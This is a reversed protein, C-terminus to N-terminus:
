AATTRICVSNFLMASLMIILPMKKGKTRIMLPYVFARHLYHVMFLGIMVGSPTRWDFRSLPICSLFAVMLSTGGTIAGIIAAAADRVDVFDVGGPLLAPIKGKYM